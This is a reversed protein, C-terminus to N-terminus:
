EPDARDHGLRQDGQQGGPDGRHDGLVARHPGGAVQGLEGVQGQGQEPLALDLDVAGTHGGGLPQAPGAQGRLSEKLSPRDSTLPVSPMSARAQRATASASSSAAMASTAQAMDISPRSPVSRGNWARRCSSRGWGPWTALAALRRVMSAPDGMRALWRWESWAM